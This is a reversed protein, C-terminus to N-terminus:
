SMELNMFLISIKLFVPTEITLHSTPLLPEPVGDGVGGLGVRPGGLLGACAERVQGRAERGGAVTRSNGRGWVRGLHRSLNGLEGEM